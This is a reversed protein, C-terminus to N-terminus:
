TLHYMLLSTASIVSGVVSSGVSHIPVVCPETSVIIILRGSGSSLCVWGTMTVLQSVSKVEINKSVVQYQSM